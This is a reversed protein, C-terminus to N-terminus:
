LFAHKLLMQWRVSRWPLANSLAITGVDHIRVEAMILFQTM